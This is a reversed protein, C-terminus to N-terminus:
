VGNLNPGLILDHSIHYSYGLFLLESHIEISYM